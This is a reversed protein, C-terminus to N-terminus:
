ISDFESSQMVIDAGTGAFGNGFFGSNTLTGNNQFLGINAVM